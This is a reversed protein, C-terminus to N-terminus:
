KRADAKPPKLPATAPPRQVVPSLAANRLAPLYVKLNAGPCDTPAHDNHGTIRAPDIKYRQTLWATLALLSAIQADTPKEKDFQGEVVILIQGATEYKTNTDGAFAVDRGEGIRGSVDIYYHYPLDGWAPKKVKGVTGPSMSFGQLGRLKAELSVKKQQRVSTHHLVIGTPKQPSMMQTKAPTAGWAARSVIPPSAGPDTRGAVSAMVCFLLCAATRM